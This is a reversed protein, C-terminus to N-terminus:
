TSLRCFDCVIGKEVYMKECFRCLVWGKKVKELVRAKIKDELTGNCVPRKKRELAAKETAVQVRLKKVFDFKLVRLLQALLKDEYFSLETKWVPNETELLLTGKYVSVPKLQSSLRGSIEEWQSQIRGLLRRDSLLKQYRRNQGYIDGLTTM